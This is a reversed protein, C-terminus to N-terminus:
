NTSAAAPLGPIILAREQVSALCADSRRPYLPVPLFFALHSQTEVISRLTLHM